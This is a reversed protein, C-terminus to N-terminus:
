CVSNLFILRGKTKKRKDGKKDNYKRAIVRDKRSSWSSARSRGGDDLSVRRPHVAKSPSESNSVSEQAVRVTRTQFKFHCLYIM